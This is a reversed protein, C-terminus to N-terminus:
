EKCIPRSIKMNAVVNNMQNIMENPTQAIYVKGGTMSAVCDIKHQGAIDVINIKLRPKQMAIYNALTCINNHSCNDEGDSIVLIYDERTVGDLIKSAQEIGSYLPTASYGNELPELNNIKTKLSSRQAVGYFPSVEASPCRSLTVLGIDINKQIKDISALAVEKSSSLRNPLRFMRNTYALVDRPDMRNIAPRSLSLFKQIEAQSEMLTLKMSASNDFVMVMKSANPNKKIEEQTICNPDTKIKAKPAPAPVPATKPPEPTPIPDTKANPVVEPQSQPDASPEPEKEDIPPTTPPTIPPIVAAPQTVAPQPAPVPEHEHEPQKAKEWPCFFYGLLGLLALLLLALLVLYWWRWWSRSAVPPISAPPILAPKVAPLIPPEFTNVIVPDDNIAYIRNGLSKIRPLWEVILNHQEPTFSMLKIAEEIDNIRTQLTQEIAQKHTSDAMESLLIPQGEIDTYWDIFHNGDVWTPKALISFTRATLRPQLLSLLANYQTLLAIKEGYQDNSDITIRTIRQM